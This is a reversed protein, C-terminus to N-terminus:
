WKVKSPPVNSAAATMKLMAEADKWHMTFTLRSTIKREGKSAGTVVNNRHCLARVSISYISIMM